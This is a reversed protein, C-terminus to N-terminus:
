TKANFRLLLLSSYIKKRLMECPINHAYANTLAMFLGATTFLIFTIGVDSGSKNSPLMVVVVDSGSKNSPLMVVFIVSTLTKESHLM